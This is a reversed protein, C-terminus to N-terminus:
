KLSKLHNDIKDCMEKIYERKEYSTEMNNRLKMLSPTLRGNVNTDIMEDICYSLSKITTM